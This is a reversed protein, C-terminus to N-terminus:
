PRQIAEFEARTLYGDQNKDATSFRAAVLRDARSEIVTIVGDKDVDLAEFSAANRPEAGACLQASMLMGVLVCFKRQM